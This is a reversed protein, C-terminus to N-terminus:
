FQCPSSPMRGQYLEKPSSIKAAPFTPTQTATFSPLYCIQQPQSERTMSGGFSQCKTELSRILIVSVQEKRGQEWGGTQTTYTRLFSFRM